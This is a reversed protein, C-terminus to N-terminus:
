EHAGVPDKVQHGLAAVFVVQAECHFPDPVMITIAGVLKGIRVFGIPGLRRRRRGRGAATSRRVFLIHAFYGRGEGASASAALNAVFASGFRHHHQVTVAPIALSGAPPRKRREDDHRGCSELEPLACQAEMGRGTFHTALGMPAEARFAARRNLALGVCDRMDDRDSRCAQIIRTPEIQLHIDPGRVRVGPVLDIGRQWPEFLIRGRSVLVLSSSTVVPCLLKAKEPPM